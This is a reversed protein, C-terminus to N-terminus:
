CCCKASPSVASTRWPSRFCLRPHGRPRSQRIPVPNRLLGSFWRLAHSAVDLAYATLHSRGPRHVVRVEVGDVDIPDTFELPGVIFAVLYTSMPMTEAFTVRRRNPASLSERVVGTNSVALHEADVVLTTAFTAKYAPKTGVRSPEALTPRNFSRLPSPTHLEVKTKTPPVTSVESAIM